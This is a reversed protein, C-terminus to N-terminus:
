MSDFDFEEFFPFSSLLAMDSTDGLFATTHDFDVNIDLNETADYNGQTVPHNRSSDIGLDSRSPNDRSPRSPQSADGVRPVVVYSKGLCM